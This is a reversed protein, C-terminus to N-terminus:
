IIERFLGQHIDVLYEEIIDVKRGSYRFGECVNEAVNSIIGVRRDDVLDRYVFM